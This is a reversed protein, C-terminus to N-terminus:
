SIRKRGPVRMRSKPVPPPEQKGLRTKFEDVTRRFLYPDRLLHCVGNTEAIDGGNLQTSLFLLSLKVEDDGPRNHRQGVQHADDALVNGALLLVCVGVAENYELASVERGLQSRETTQSVPLWEALPKVLFPKLLLFQDIQWESSEQPREMVM